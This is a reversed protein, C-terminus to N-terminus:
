MEEQRIRAKLENIKNLLLEKKINKFIKNRKRNFQHSIKEKTAHVQDQKKSRRIISYIAYVTLYSILYILAFLNFLFSDALQHWWNNVNILLLSPITLLIYGTALLIKDILRVDLLRAAFIIGVLLFLGMIWNTISM